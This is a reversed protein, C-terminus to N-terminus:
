ARFKRLVRAVTVVVVEGEPGHAHFQSGVEIQAGEPFASRPMVQTKADDRVGYGDQPAVSVRIEDGPSRGTLARELGPIINRAGHLYAFEGGESRDILKGDRDRLTYDITVVKEAAIQM